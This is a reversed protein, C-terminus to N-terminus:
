AAPCQAAEAAAVTRDVEATGASVSRTGPVEVLVESMRCGVERIRLFIGVAVQSVNDAASRSLTPFPRSSTGEYDSTGPTPVAMQKHVPKVEPLVQVEGAAAAASTTGAEMVGVAEIVVRGFAAAETGASLVMLIEKDVHVHRPPSPSTTDYQM